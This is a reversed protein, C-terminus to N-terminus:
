VEINDISGKTKKALRNNEAQLRVLETLLEIQTPGGQAPPTMNSVATAEAGPIQQTTSTPEAEATKGIGITPVSQQDISTGEQMKYADVKEAVIGTKNQMTYMDIQSQLQRTVNQMAEGIRAGDGSLLANTDVNVGAAGLETQRSLIQTLPDEGASYSNAGSKATIKDMLDYLGTSGTDGHLKDFSQSKVAEQQQQKETEEKSPGFLKMAGLKLMDAMNLQDMQEVMYQIGDGIAYFQDGVYDGDIADLAATLQETSTSFLIMSEAHTDLTSFPAFPDEGMDQISNSLSRMQRIFPETYESIVSLMVGFEPLKESSILLVEFADATKILPEVDLKSLEGIFEKLKDIPSDAGFLSGIGDKVSSMLSGGSLASMGSGLSKLADGALLLNFM